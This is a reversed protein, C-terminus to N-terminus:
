SFDMEDCSDEAFGDAATHTGHFRLAGRHEVSLRRRSGRYILVLM